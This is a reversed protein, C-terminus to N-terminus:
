CNKQPSRALTFPIERLCCRTRAHLPRAPTFLRARLCARLTRTHRPLSPTLASRRNELELRRQFVGGNCEVRYCRTIYYNERLRPPLHLRSPNRVRVLVFGYPVFALAAPQLTRANNLSHLDQMHIPQTAEWSCMRSSKLVGWVRARGFHQCCLSLPLWCCSSAPRAGHYQTSGYWEQENEFGVGTVKTVKALRNLICPIPV